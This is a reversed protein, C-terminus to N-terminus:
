VDDKDAFDLNVTRQAGELYVTRWVDRADGVPKFGTTRDANKGQAMREFTVRSGDVVLDIKSGCHLSALASKLPSIPLHSLWLCEDKVAVPASM